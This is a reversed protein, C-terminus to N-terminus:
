GGPEGAPLLPPTACPRGSEARFPTAAVIGGLLAGVVHVSAAHQSTDGAFLVGGTLNEAILKGVFALGLAAGLKRDTSGARWLQVAVATTLAADIGSLGAYAPLEPQTLVLFGSIGVTSGLLTALLRRRSKLEIAAGLVVFALADWLLHDFSLHVFHATLWSWPRAAGDGPHLLLVDPQGALAFLTVVAGALTMTVMPARM